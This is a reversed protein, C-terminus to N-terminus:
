RLFGAGKPDAMSKGTNEVQRPNGTKKTIELKEVKSFGYNYRGKSKM